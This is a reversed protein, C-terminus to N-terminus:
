INKQINKFYETVNNFINKKNKNEIEIIFM